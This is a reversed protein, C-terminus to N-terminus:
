KLLLRGVLGMVKKQAANVHRVVVAATFSNGPGLLHSHEHPVDSHLEELVPNDLNTRSIGLTAVPQCQFQKLLSCSQSKRKTSKLHVVFNHRQRQEHLRVDVHLSLGVGDQEVGVDAQLHAFM